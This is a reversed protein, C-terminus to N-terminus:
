LLRIFIYQEQGWKISLLVLACLPSRVETPGCLKKTKLDPIKKHRIFPKSHHARERLPCDSWERLCPQRCFPKETTSNQKTPIM